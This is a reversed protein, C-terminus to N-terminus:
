VRLFNEENGYKKGRKIEEALMPNWMAGTASMVADAGAARYDRDDDPSAVGGGAVIVFKFRHEERLRALRKTMDLGAWRIDAGCIGALDRGPLAPQGDQQVVKAQITNIACIGEVRDGVASVLKALLADDAFYAIKLLLPRDNVRKKVGDVIHRVADADFCVLGTKGENPCSLNAEIVPAGTEAVLQAATPYDDLLEDGEGTGQFSGILLQGERASEVAKQMDPQWVEPPKSPVGFSNTISRPAYEQPGDYEDWTKGEVAEVTDGNHLQGQSRVELINPFPLAFVRRSRVTKYVCLDFGYRFAADCFAANLLPGAPIGFTEHIPKGLFTKTPHATPQPMVNPTGFEGFPGFLYNEEYTLAPNYFPQATM